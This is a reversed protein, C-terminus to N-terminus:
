SGDSTVPKGDKTRPQHPLLAFKAEAEKDDRPYFPDNAAHWRNHCGPCILHINGRHNIETNKVPGHHRVEQFGDGCGAIPFLGGGCNWLDRWECPKEPNLPYLVAARKRGASIGVGAKTRGKKESSVPTEDYDVADISECCCEEISKPNRCEEHLQRVCPLCSM